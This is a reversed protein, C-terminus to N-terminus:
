QNLVGRIAAFAKDQNVFHEGIKRPVYGLVADVAGGSPSVAAKGATSVGQVIQGQFSDRAVPGFVSDLEDAFLMLSMLDTDPDGRRIAADEIKKVADMLTVRSQANSMLRRLLTGLAKDANGGHLDMKKGAVDQLADIAERTTAYTQNVSDYGAFNSDLTKDINHRLRKVITEAQGKLGEGSKGYNANEDIYKKIRHLDYASKVEGQGVRNLINKIVLEPGDLGEIDSGKFNPRVRGSSSELRVGIGQLDQAFQDAANTYDVQRGKLKAAEKDLDKAARRNIGDVVKFRELLTDGAVDAPRKNAAYRKNKIGREMIDTMELMKAKDTKTAQKVAQITGPDFGQDIAASAAADKVTNGKADVKFTVLDADESGSLIKDAMIKKVRSQKPNGGKPNYGIMLPDDTKKVTEKVSRELAEKFPTAKEFFKPANRVASGGGKLGMVEMLGEPAVRALTALMPNGTEEMVRRGYTEGAGNERVSRITDIAQDLDQGKLLEYLGAVGSVPFNVLDIVEQVGEALAEMGEQGRQTTPTFAEGQIRQSREAGSAAGDGILADTLGALGGSVSHVAGSGVARAPEVISDMFNGEPMPVIDPSGLEPEKNKEDFQDFMNQGVSQAKRVVEGTEQSAVEDFQDFINEAM